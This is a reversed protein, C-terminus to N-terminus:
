RSVLRLLAHFVKGPSLDSMSADSPRQYGPPKELTVVEHTEPAWLPGVRAPGPTCHLLALTPTGIAFSLHMIGTDTSVLIKSYEILAASEPLSLRGALNWVPFAGRIMEILERSKQRHDPGGLLILPGIGAAAAMQLLKAFHGSPWDRFPGGAGGLQFTVPPNPPIQFERLKRKLSEREEERVEYVMRPTSPRTGAVRALAEAQAAFHAREFPEAPLLHAVLWPMQTTWCFGATHHPALLYGLSRVEPDHCSFYLVADWPGRARLTKWLHLFGAPGKRFLHVMQVFPNHRAIDPRRHHAVVEIHIGPFSEALSRIGASDFLSDGIGATSFALVRSGSHLAFPRPVPPRIKVLGGFVGRYFALNLRSSIGLRKRKASM